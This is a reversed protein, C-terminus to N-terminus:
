AAAKDALMAVMVDSQSLIGVMKGNADIVPLYHLGEEAFRIIAEEIATEPQVTRVPSTMIDKVTDNPASTGSLILRLRQLFGISPRGNRWSAKELFDTQTVIGLIEARDNTVPLAKFHHNRMLSHAHRLSDDPAVGVVDRSMVSACDLHLARRRWSRLETKRLIMELVDRDIDLVEDYEKLVEDLDASSFGIKQIPTPDATGHSAKGLRLGHPYARGTANNYVLALILLILSNGAVPWLIFGYGLSHVAPGGLVATLAVAGSPPHLCRLAMMAAIALSIALASALFIDPVLLAVTVGVFASVINGCLISWPQALPSSPVAFLLVASAGMPAIMAPLTPDLRFALSGLLGTLSIGVFAGAAARLRERNSVPAADPILRRLTSRM